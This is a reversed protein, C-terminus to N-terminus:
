SAGMCATRTKRIRPIAEYTNRTRSFYAGRAAQPLTERQSVVKVASCKGAIFKIRSRIPGALPV